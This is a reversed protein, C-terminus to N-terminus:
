KLGGSNPCLHTNYILGEFYAPEPAIQIELSMAGKLWLLLRHM